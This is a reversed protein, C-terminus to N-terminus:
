PVESYTMFSYSADLMDLLQTALCECYGRWSLRKTGQEQVYQIV